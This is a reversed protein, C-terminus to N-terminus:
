NNELAMGEPSFYYGPINEAVELDSIEVLCYYQEDFSNIVKIKQPFYVHDGTILYDSFHITKMKLGSRSFSEIKLLKREQFYYYVKGYAAERGKATMVLKYVTDGNQDIVEYDSYSYINTIDKSIIDGISVDGIMSTSSNIILSRKSAPYYYWITNNIMLIKEGINAQPSTVSMLVKNGDKFYAHYRKIQVEKNPSYYAMAYNATYSPAFVMKSLLDLLYEVEGEHVTQAYIRVSFLSFLLFLFCKKNRM